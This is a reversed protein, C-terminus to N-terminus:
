TRSGDPRQLARTLSSVAEGFEDAERRTNYAHFSARLTGPVGRANFWSHLCHDGSRVLMHHKDELLIALAHPDIGDLSLPVIATRTTLPAGVLDVGPVDEIAAAARRMLEEGHSHVKGMGLRALLEVAPKVGAIGAYNQLGAEFKAPGDLFEPAGDYTTRAVTNGGTIFPSLEDLAEPKSLLAGVGTPGLMKHASVAYHDAGLRALDVSLHSAAQAGDLLVRVDGAEHALRVLEAVPAVYGDLNSVHVAAVFRVDRRALRDRWAELDM